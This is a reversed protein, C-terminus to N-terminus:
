EVKKEMLRCKDEREVKTIGVDESYYAMCEKGICEQFVEKYDFAPVGSGYYNYDARHYMKRFPCRKM